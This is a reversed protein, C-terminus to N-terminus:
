LCEIVAMYMDIDSESAHKNSPFIRDPSGSVYNIYLGWEYDEADNDDIKRPKIPRKIKMISAVNDLNILVSDFKYFKAM